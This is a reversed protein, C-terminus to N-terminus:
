RASPSGIGHDRRRVAAGDDIGIRRRGQGRRSGAIHKRRSITPRIAWPISAKAAAAAPGPQVALGGGSKSGPQQGFIQRIQQGRTRRRSASPEPYPGVHGGPDGPDRNM